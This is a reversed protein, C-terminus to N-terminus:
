IEPNRNHEKPVYIVISSVRGILPNENYHDCLAKPILYQPYKHIKIYKWTTNNDSLVTNATSNM